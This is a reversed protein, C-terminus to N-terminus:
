HKSNKRSITGEVYGTGRHHTLLHSFAMILEIAYVFVTSFTYSKSEFIVKRGECCSNVSNLETAVVDGIIADEYHMGTKYLLNM